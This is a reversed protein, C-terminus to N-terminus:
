LVSKYNEIIKQTALASNKSAKVIYEEFQIQNPVEKGIVDSISRIIIFPIKRLYAIQAISGAEMEVACVDEFNQTVYNLRNLDGIFQDGSAITAYHYKLDLQSLAMLINKNVASQYYQPLDPLVGPLRNALVLDIDHNCVKKAVVIDLIDVEHENVVGGASGVNIIFDIPIFNLITTLAYATNVKGIGSLMLTVENDNISGQHYEVHQLTHKKSDNMLLLIENYEVEMAAVILIM